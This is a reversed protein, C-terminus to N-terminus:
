GESKEQQDKRPKKRELGPIPPARSLGPIAPAREGTRTSDWPRKLPAIPPQEEESEEIDEEQDEITEFEIPGQNIYFGKKKPIMTLPNYTKGVESDDIFDDDLDYGMGLDVFDAVNRMKEPRKIKKAHRQFRRYAELADTNMFREDEEDDSDDAKGLAKRREATVVEKFDIVPYRKGRFNKLDITLFVDNRKKEKKRKKDVM